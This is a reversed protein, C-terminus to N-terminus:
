NVAAMWGSSLLEKQMSSDKRANGDLVLSGGQCQLRHLHKQLPEMHVYLDVGLKPGSLILGLVISTGTLLTGPM